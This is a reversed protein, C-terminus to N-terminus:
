VVEGDPMVIFQPKGQRQAHRITAWTGSRLKEPGEPTAILIDTEDVINRNRVLYPLPERVEDAGSCFARLKDDYPPHVVVRLGLDIAARHAEADSGVCDGHHLELEGVIWDRVQREQAVTMGQRTGTFGLRFGVM